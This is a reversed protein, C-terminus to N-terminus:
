KIKLSYKYTHLDKKLAEIFSERAEVMRKDSNLCMTQQDIYEQAMAIYKESVTDENM